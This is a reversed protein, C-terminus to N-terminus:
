GRGRKKRRKEDDAESERGKTDSKGRSPAAGLRWSPLPCGHHTTPVPRLVSSTRERPRPSWAAVTSPPSALLLTFCALCLVLSALISPAFPPPMHPLPHSPPASRLLLRFSTPAASSSLGSLYPKWIKYMRADFHVVSIQRFPQLFDPRLLFRGKRGKV